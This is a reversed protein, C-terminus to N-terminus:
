QGPDCLRALEQDIDIAGESIQKLAIKRLKEYLSDFEQNLEALYQHFSLLFQQPDNIEEKFQPLDASIEIGLLNFAIGIEETMASFNNALQSVGWGAAFFFNNWEPAPEMEEIDDIITEVTALAKSVGQRANGILMASRSYDLGKNM